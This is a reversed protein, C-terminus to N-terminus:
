QVEAFPPVEGPADFQMITFHEDDLIDDNGDLIFFGNDFLIQFESDDQYIIKGRDEGLYWASVFARFKIERSM